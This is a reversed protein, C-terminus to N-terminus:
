VFCHGSHCAMDERGREADAPFGMAALQRLPILSYSVYCEDKVGICRLDRVEDDFAVAQLWDQPRRDHMDKFHAIDNAFCANCVSRPPVPLKHQMFYGAIKADTWGHTILPYEMYQYEQKAEKIRHWEDASFGIWKCVADRGMNKTKSSVGIHAEMWQRLARDMPAIKYALTCKQMLRGRKGTERNRTWLPPTDFRTAGSKKLDIMEQWLNRKTRLFPVGAKQCEAEMMTVYDYTRSDEMGPDANIVIFNPPMPIDGRLTMWLLASSGKGGSFSLCTVWPRSLWIGNRHPTTM